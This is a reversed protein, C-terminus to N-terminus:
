YTYSRACDNEEGMQMKLQLIYIKFRQFDKRVKNYNEILEETKKM